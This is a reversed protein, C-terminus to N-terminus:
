FNFSLTNSLTYYTKRIDPFNRSDHNLTYIIKLALYKNINIKLQTENAFRFQGLNLFKPQFYTTSTLSIDKSFNANIAIYNSSLIDKSIFTSDLSMEEYEGMLSTGYSIQYKPQNIVIFRFGTGILLRSNIRQIKNFQGQQFLEYIVRGSDKLTYNYRVHEFGKNIFDTNSNSKVLAHDTLLMLYNRKKAYAIKVKDGIQVLQTTAYTLQFNLDIHGSFGQKTNIRQSEINVIQASCNNSVVFYFLIAILKIFNNNKQFTM